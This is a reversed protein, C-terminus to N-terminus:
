SLPATSALPFVHNALSPERTIDRGVIMSM